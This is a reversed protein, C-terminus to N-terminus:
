KEAATDECLVRVNLIYQACARQTIKDETCYAHLFFNRTKLIHLESLTIFGPSLM